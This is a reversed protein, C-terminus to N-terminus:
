QKTIATVRGSSGAIEVDFAVQDGVALDGLLTPDVDFAMTMAPWEAAPIAAHNLTVKGAEADIATITGTSKAAVTQSEGQVMPMDGTESMEGVQAAPSETAQPERETDSCGALVLLAAGLSISHKLQSYM